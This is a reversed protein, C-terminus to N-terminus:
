QEVLYTSGTLGWFDVQKGDAGVVPIMPQSLGWHAPDLNFLTSPPGFTLSQAHLHGVLLLFLLTYHPRM